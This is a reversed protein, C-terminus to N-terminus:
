TKPLYGGYVACEVGRQHFWFLLLQNRETALQLADSRVKRNPAVRGPQLRGKWNVVPEKIDAGAGDASLLDRDPLRPGSHQPAASAKMLFIQSLPLNDDPDDGPDEVPGPASKFNCDALEKASNIISCNISVIIM